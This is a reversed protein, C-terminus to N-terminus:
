VFLYLYQFKDRKEVFKDHVETFRNIKLLMAFVDFKLCFM